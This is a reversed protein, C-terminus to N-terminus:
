QASWAGGSAGNLWTERFLRITTTALGRRCEGVDFRPNGQDQNYFAGAGTRLVWKPNPSWAIGIRPAFDNNDRNV